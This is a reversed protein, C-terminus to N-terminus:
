LAFKAMSDAAIVQRPDVASGGIRVEFYFRELSNGLSTGAPLVSGRDLHSAAEESLNAYLTLIGEGHDVLVVRSRGPVKGTYVVTGPACTRVSGDLQTLWWGQSNWELGTDSDKTKGFDQQIHIATDLPKLWGQACQFSRQKASTSPKPTQANSFEIQQALRIRLWELEYNLDERRQRLNELIRINERLGVHLWIQRKKRQEEALSESNSWVFQPPSAGNKAGHFLKAKEKLSSTNSSIQADVKAIQATIDAETNFEELSWSSSSILALGLPALKLLSFARSM